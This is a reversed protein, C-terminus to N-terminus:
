WFREWLGLLNSKLKFLGHFFDTGQKMICSGCTLIALSSRWSALLQKACFSSKIIIGLDPIQYRFLSKRKEILQQAMHLMNFLLTCVLIWTDANRNAQWCWQSISVYRRAKEREGWSHQIEKQKTSSCRDVSLLYWLWFLGDGATAYCLGAFHSSEEKPDWRSLWCHEVSYNNTQSIPVPVM